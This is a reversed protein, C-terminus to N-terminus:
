TRRVHRRTIQELSERLKGAPVVIDSDPILRKSFMLRPEIGSLGFYRLNCACSLRSFCPYLYNSPLLELLDTRQNCFVINSLGAGHVGCVIRAGSFARVQESFSMGGPDIRHFAFEQLVEDVEQSNIIQRRSGGGRAIFLRDHESEGSKSILQRLYDVVWSPVYRNEGPITSMVCQEAVVSEEIRIGLVQHQAIGAIQLSESQFANVPEPVLVHDIQHLPVLRAALELRPLTQLLWHYYNGTWPGLLSVSLGGIRRSSEPASAGPRNRNHSLFADDHITEKWLGSYTTGCSCVFMADQARCMVNRYIGAGWPGIRALRKYSHFQSIRRRERINWFYATDFDRALEEEAMPLFEISSRVDIANRPANGSSSKPVFLM